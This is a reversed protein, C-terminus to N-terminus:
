IRCNPARTGPHTAHLADFSRPSISQRLRDPTSSTYCFYFESIKPYFVGHHGLRVILVNKIRQNINKVLTRPTEPRIRRPDFAVNRQSFNLKGRQGQVFRDLRASNTSAGGQNKEPQLFPARPRSCPSRNVEQHDGPSSRRGRVRREGLRVM